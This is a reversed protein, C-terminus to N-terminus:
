RAKDADDEDGEDRPMKMGMLGMLNSTPGAVGAQSKFSELLNKALTYDINVEETDDVEEDKDEYDKATGTYAGAETLEAEMRRMVNRMEDVDDEPDVETVRSHQKSQTTPTSSGGDDAPMGMMERMMRAFEREDFSVDVDEGSSVGEDDDDEDDDDDVDMDDVVEAGDAGAADDNLFDEFREVMKRLNEQTADDRFTSAGKGTGKSGSKGGGGSLEREFDEFNVDLWSEDDEGGNWGKIEENSPLQVNRKDLASLISRISKVVEKGQSQPDAVLMEFACTVKMGTESMGSAKPDVEEPLVGTWLPPPAFQQGKLQAYGVKTFRVSVTVLDEPPFSVGRGGEAATIQLPRM